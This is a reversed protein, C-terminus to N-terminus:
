VHCARTNSPIAAASFLRSLGRSETGRRTQHLLQSPSPRLRGHTPTLTPCGQWIKQTNYTTRAQTERQAYTPEAQILAEVKHRPNTTITSVHSYLALHPTNEQLYEQCTLITLSARKEPYITYAEDVGRIATRPWWERHSASLYTGTGLGQGRATVFALGVLAPRAASHQDMPPLPHGAM